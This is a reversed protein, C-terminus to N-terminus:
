AAAIGLAGHAGPAIIGGEQAHAQEHCVGCLSIFHEVRYSPLLPPQRWLHAVVTRDRAGCRQCTYADRALAAKRAARTRHTHFADLAVHFAFGLLTLRAWRWRLGLLGLAALAEPSHLCRIGDHQPPMAQAFFRVAGRPSLQRQKVCYWAYHDVDILLSAAWPALAARGMRPALLTATASSLLLHDRIRM